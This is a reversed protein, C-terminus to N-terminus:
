QNIHNVVLQTTVGNINEIYFESYINRLNTFNGIGLVVHKGDRSYTKPSPPNVDDFDFYGDFLDGGAQTRGLKVHLKSIDVTDLLLVSVSLTFEEADDFEEIDAALDMPDMLLTTDIIHATTPELFLHVDSILHLDQAILSNSTFNLFVLLSLIAITKM